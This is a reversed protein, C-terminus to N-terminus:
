ISHSQHYSGQEIYIKHALPFEEEQPSTVFSQLVAQLQSKLCNKREGDLHVGLDDVHLVPPHSSEEKLLEYEILRLTSTVSRKQGESAVGRAIHKRLYIALDDRHPGITTSGLIFDKERHKTLSQFIAEESDILCHPQYKLHIPDNTLLLSSHAQLRENLLESCKKREQFLYFASKSIEREWADLSLTQRTKLLANRQKLGKTFRALHYVYLPNYQSLHFNFFRRREQPSGDILAVDSPAIIVSPFIGLIQSFHAHKTQNFFFSKEEKSYNLTLTHEVGDKEIVGVVTFSKQGHKILESLFSTRFSRGTSLLYIAELLNSKGQGNKGCILNVGQSFRFSEKGYNRFNRLHLQKLLM